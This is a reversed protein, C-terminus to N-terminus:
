RASWGIERATVPGVLTQSLDDPMVQSDPALPVRGAMIEALRQPYRPERQPEAYGDPYLPVDNDAAYKDTAGFTHLLEHAIVIANQSAQSRAAFLHVIGLLGRQLGLSHPLVAARAPDHYVLFLAIKPRSRAISDLVGARYRRLRLTWLVRQLLNANAAPEPPGAAPAPYLKNNVPADITVGYRRAERGVFDAVPQLDANEFTAIYASAAASGDANVPFAGVWVTREWSTTRRQDLWTGGAVVALVVLLIAIRIARWM